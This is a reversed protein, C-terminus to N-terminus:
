IKAQHKTKEFNGSYTFAAMMKTLSCLESKKESRLM